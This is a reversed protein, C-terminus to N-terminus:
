DCHAGVLEATKRYGALTVQCAAEPYRATKFVECAQTAAGNSTTRTAITLCCQYALLCDGMLSGGINSSPALSTALVTASAELRRLEEVTSESRSKLWFVVAVIAAVALLMTIGCGIGLAVLLRRNNPPQPASFAGQAAPPATPQQPMQGPYQNSM